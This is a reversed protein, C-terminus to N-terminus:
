AKWTWKLRGKKREGVVEFELARRLVNSGEMWILHSGDKWMM